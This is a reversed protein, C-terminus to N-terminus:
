LQFICSHHCTVPSILTLFNFFFFFKTTTQCKDMWTPWLKYNMIVLYVFGNILTMNSNAHRIFRIYAISYWLCYISNESDLSWKYIDDINLLFYVVELSNPLIVCHTMKGCYLLRWFFRFFFIAMVLLDFNFVNRKININSSHNTFYSDSAKKKQWLWVILVSFM